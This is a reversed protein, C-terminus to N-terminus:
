KSSIIKRFFEEAEKYNMRDLFSDEPKILSDKFRKEAADQGYKELDEKFSSWHQGNNLSILGKNQALINAKMGNQLKKFTQSVSRYPYETMHLGLQNAPYYRIELGRVAKYNQVLNHNGQGVIRDICDARFAIKGLGSEINKQRYKIRQYFPLSEDIEEGYVGLHKSKNTVLSNIYFPVESLISTLNKEPIWFEDADVPFIWKTEPWVTVAYRYSATIIKSQIYETIPDYILFVKAFKETEKRFKEILELTKDTSNNDVVVFKRFGLAFHWVLNEYIIDDEDKVMTILVADEVPADSFLPRFPREIEVKTNLLNSNKISFKESIYFSISVLVIIFFLLAQLKKSNQM